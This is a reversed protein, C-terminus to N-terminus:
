MRGGVATHISHVPQSLFGTRNNGVRSSHASKLFSLPNFPLAPLFTSDLEMTVM